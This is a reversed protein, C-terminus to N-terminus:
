KASFKADLSLSSVLTFYVGCQTKKLVYLMENSASFM